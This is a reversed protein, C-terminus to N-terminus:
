RARQLRWVALGALAATPLGAALVPAWGLIQGISATVENVVYFVLGVVIGVLLRQGAGGGRQSGIVFPVAFLMMAVVTLPTVIKRWLSLRYSRTDLGNRDLYAILRMLGPTTLADAELVFLRLVDPSLHGQTDLEDLHEAIVQEGEFRTRAIGTLRWHGDVYEGHEARLVSQLSLDDGLQYIELEAVERESILTGIHMVATGDRLWVPRTALGAPAGDKAQDRFDRAAQTGAPALVDGLLVEFGGFLVGALLAAAGIQMVTMGAARMATIENQAALTGLGMLTGLLAIVPMLTYLGTPVMMATYYLLQVVGFGGQGAQDIESVFSIFTYIAVLALAVIASFSVIHTVLHQTLRRTM